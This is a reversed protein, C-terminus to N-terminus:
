ERLHILSWGKEEELPELCLTLPCQAKSGEEAPDGLCWFVHAHMSEVQTIQLNELEPSRKYSLTAWMSWNVLHTAQGCPKQSKQGPLRVEEEVAERKLLSELQMIHPTELRTSSAM